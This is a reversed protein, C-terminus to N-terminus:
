ARIASAHLGGELPPLVKKSICSIVSGPQRAPAFHRYLLLWPLGVAMEYVSNKRDFAIPDRKSVAVGDHVPHEDFLRIHLQSGACRGRFHGFNAHGRPVYEEHSVVTGGTDIAAVDSHM